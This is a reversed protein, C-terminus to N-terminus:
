IRSAGKLVHKGRIAHVMLLVHLGQVPHHKGQCIQSRCTRWGPSKLMGRITAPTILKAQCLTSIGGCCIMSAVLWYQQAHLGSLTFSSSSKLRVASGM